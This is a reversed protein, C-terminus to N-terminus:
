VVQVNFELKKTIDSINYSLTDWSVHFKIFLKFHRRGYSTILQNIGFLILFLYIIQWDQTM